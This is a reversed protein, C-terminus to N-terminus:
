PTTFRVTVGGMGSGDLWNEHQTTRICLRDGAALATTTLILTKNTNATGNGNISGSHLVTGAACATGSPAKYVFLVAPAGIPAVITGVISSVTSAQDITAIINEDPDINPDWGIAVRQLQASFAPGVLSLCCLFAAAARLMWHTM